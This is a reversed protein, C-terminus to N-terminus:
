YPQRSGNEAPSRASSGLLLHTGLEKMPRIISVNRDPFQGGLPSTMLDTERDGARRTQKDEERVLGGGERKGGVREGDRERERVPERM